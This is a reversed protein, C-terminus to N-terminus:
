KRGNYYLVTTSADKKGILSPKHNAYHKVFIDCDAYIPIDKIKLCTCFTLDPSASYPSANQDTGKFVFEASPLVISEIIKRSIITFANGQFEVKIIGKIGKPIWKYYRKSKDLDPLNMCINLMGHLRHGEREVNCPVAIIDYNTKKLRQILHFYEYSTALVDHAQVILHTYEKHTLYYERSLNHPLPYAMYNVIFTDCPIEKLKKLIDKYDSTNMYFLLPNIESLNM